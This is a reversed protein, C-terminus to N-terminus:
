STAAFEFLASFDATKYLSNGSTMSWGTGNRGVARCTAIVITGVM